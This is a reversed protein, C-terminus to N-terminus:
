NIDYKVRELVLAWVPVQLWEPVMNFRREKDTKLKGLLVFIVLPKVDIEGKVKCCECGIGVCSPCQVIYKSM